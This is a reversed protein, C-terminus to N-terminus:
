SLCAFRRSARSRLAFFAMVAYGLSGAGAQRYLFVDTGQYGFLQAAQVPVLLGLLGFTGSLVLGLATLRISWKSLDAVPRPTGPHRYLLAGTIAIIALSTALILYVVANAPGSAIEMICAYVSALNFTLTAIVVLRLPEWEGKRSGMVLAVAYGFAAAGALRYLFTDNGPFGLAAGFAGGLAFPFLGFLVGGLTPVWLLMRERNSMGPGDMANL